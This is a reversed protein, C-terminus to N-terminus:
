VVAAWLVKQYIGQIKKIEAEKQFEEHIFGANLLHRSRIM